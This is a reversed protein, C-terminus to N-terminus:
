YCTKVYMTVCTSPSAGHKRAYTMVLFMKAQNIFTDCTTAAEFLLNDKGPWLDALDAKLDLLKVHGKPAQARTDPIADEAIALVASGNAALAGGEISNLDGDELMSPTYGRIQDTLEQENADATHRNIKRKKRCQVLSETALVVYDVELPLCLNGAKNIKRSIEKNSKAKNWERLAVKRSFNEERMLHAIYRRKPKFVVGESAQVGRSRLVDDVISLASRRRDATEESAM